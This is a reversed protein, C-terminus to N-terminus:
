KLKARLYQLIAHRKVKEKSYLIGRKIGEIKKHVKSILYTIDRDLLELEQKTAHGQCMRELDNEINMTTLSEEILQRFKERHM